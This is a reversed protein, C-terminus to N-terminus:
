LGCRVGCPIIDRVSPDRMHGWWAFRRQWAGVLLPTNVGVVSDGRDNPKMLRASSSALLAVAVVLCLLMAGIWGWCLYARLSSKLQVMTFTQTYWVGPHHTALWCMWVAARACSFVHVLACAGSWRIRFCVSPGAINGHHCRRLAQLQMSPPFSHICTISGMLTSTTLLSASAFYRHYEGPDCTSPIRAQIMRHAPAVVVVASNHVTVVCLCVRSHLSSAHGGCLECPDRCSSTVHPLSGTTVLACCCERKAVALFCCFLCLCLVRGFCGQRTCSCMGCDRWGLLCHIGRPHLVCVFGRGAGTYKSDLIGRHSPSAWGCCWTSFGRCLPGGRVQGLRILHCAKSLLPLHRQCLM